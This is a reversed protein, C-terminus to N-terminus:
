GLFVLDMFGTRFPPVVRLNMMRVYNDDSRIDPMKILASRFYYSNVPIIILPFQLIMILFLISRQFDTVSIGKRFCLLAPWSKRISKRYFSHLTFVHAPAM